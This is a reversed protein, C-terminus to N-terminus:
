AAPPTFWIPSSWAREQITAPIRAPIPLHNQIALLTSWRPTPVELVRAYYVVPVSPNFAPDRWVTSLSAAGITNAYAGTKLDVTNGVSAATGTKANEKRGGSLAVDFVKERYTKGDLWIKVVQIRDLNAGAPDKMAQLVFSPAKAGGPRTPLDGGMPVGHAYAQKVWDAKRLLGPGLSWGGFMRVRIRTGSTGFTEKRKLAAFISERTNQEAWVGTLGASGLQLPDNENQGSPRVIKSAGTMDLAARAMELSPAMTKPDTGFAGGGAYAGEDSTSLGNHIDSGGVVGMKFPNVGVGSQIV